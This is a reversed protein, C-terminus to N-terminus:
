YELKIIQEFSQHEPFKGYLDMLDLEHYKFLELYGDM